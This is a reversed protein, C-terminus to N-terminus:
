LAQRGQRLGVLVNSIELTLIGCPYYDFGCDIDYKLHYRLVEASSVDSCQPLRVLTNMIMSSVSIRWSLSCILGYQRIVFVELLSTQKM